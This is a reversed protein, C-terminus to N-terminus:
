PLPAEAEPPLFTGDAARPAPLVRIIADRNLPGYIHTYVRRPDDYRWPARIRTREVLLVLFAGPEARFYRNATAAFEAAGDTCHIFGERALSPPAYDAASELAEWELRPILHYTIPPPQGMGEGNRAQRSPLRDTDRM